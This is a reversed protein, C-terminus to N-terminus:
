WAASPPQCAAVFRWALVTTGLTPEPYRIDAGPGTFDDASFRALGLRVLNDINAHDLGPIADGLLKATGSWGPEKGVMFDLAHAEIPELQRLIEPFAVPMDSQTTAANALLSAWREQMDPREEDAGGDLIPMLLRLPVEDASLQAAELLEQAKVLMKVRSKWRKFAIADSAWGGLQNTAPGLLKGLLATVPELLASIAGATTGEAAAKVLEPASDDAPM